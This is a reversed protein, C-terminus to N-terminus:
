GILDWLNGYLDKFVAVMGYPFKEPLRHFQIGKEVMNQFDRWFDDSKLFLFVRGGSQNGIAKKQESTAAKSLVIGAGTSGPPAILIWRKNQEPQFTDEILEFGLQGCFFNISEDYERVILAVHVLNQAM